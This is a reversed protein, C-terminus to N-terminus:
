RKAVFVEAQQKGVLEVVVVAGIQLPEMEQLEQLQRWSAITSIDTSTAEDSRGFFDAKWYIVERCYQIRNLPVHPEVGRSEVDQFLPGDDYGKDAGLTKPKVGHTAKVGDLM